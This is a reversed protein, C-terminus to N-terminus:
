LVMYTRLALDKPRGHLKLKQAAAQLLITCESGDDLIAFTELAHEGNWLIAKTVKLLVQSCGLIRDLNLVENTNNVLRTNENVTRENL